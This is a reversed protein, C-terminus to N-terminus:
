PIPRDRPLYRLELDRLTLLVPGEHTLVVEGQYGTTRGDATGLVLGDAATPSLLPDTIDSAVAILGKGGWLSLDLIAVEWFPEGGGPLQATRCETPAEDVLLCVELQTTEEARGRLRIRQFVKRGFADGNDLAASKLVSKITVPALTPVPDYDTATPQDNELVAGPVNGMVLFGREIAQADNTAVTAHTWSPITHPGWWSPVPGQGRPAGPGRRMDLSWMTGRDTTHQPDRAPFVLHYFGHQYFAFAQAARGPDLTRFFPTLPWGIDLPETLQPQLLYVSERGCFVVGWRTPSVTEAAVCGVKGSLQVLESNPDGLDGFFLWTSNQKFVAMPSEPSKQTSTLAAVALGTVVDGDGESFPVVASWPFFDGIDFIQQELGPVVTSTSFVRSPQRPDGAFWVAARHTAFIRGQRGVEAIPVLTSDIVIDRITLSASATLGEPAQDTSTEIAADSQTVFLHYKQNPALATTPATFTLSNGVGSLTFTHALDGTSNGVAVWQKAASDYIAWAFSYTGTPLNTTSDATAAVTYGTDDLMPLPALATMTGSGIATSYIPEVGNGVYLKQGLVTMGYPMQGLTAFAGVATFNLDDASKYLRTVNFVDTAVAYLYRRGLLDYARLIVEVYPSQGPVNAILVTGHRKELQFNLNPLWNDSAQLYSSGIFVPEDAINVGDFRRVLLPVDAQSAM